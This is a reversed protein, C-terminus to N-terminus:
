SSDSGLLERIVRPYEGRYEGTPIRRKIIRQFHPIREWDKPWAKAISELSKAWKFHLFAPKKIQFKSFFEKPSHFIECLPGTEFYTEETVKFIFPDQKFPPRGIHKLESGVIDVGNVTIADYGTNIMAGLWDMAIMDGDWKCVYTRTTKSLCWNYFYAREYVSNKPQQDHGPGNPFSDFPYEYILVNERNEAWRKVLIDTGDTQKGQLCIIIENCWWISELSRIIYEAEDKLRIMASLGPVRENGVIIDWDTLHEINKTIM